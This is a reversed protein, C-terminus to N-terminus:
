DLIQNSALLVQSSVVLLLSGWAWVDSALTHSASDNRILEPAAYRVTIGNIQTSTLGSPVDELVMALGFDCLVADGRDNM